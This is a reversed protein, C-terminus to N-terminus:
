FFIDLGAWNKLSMHSKVAIKGAIEMDPIPELTSLPTMSIQERM